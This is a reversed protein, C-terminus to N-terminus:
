EIVIELSGKIRILEGKFLHVKNEFEVILAESMISTQALITYDDVIENVQVIAEIHSSFDINQNFMLEETTRSYTSVLDIILRGSIIEETADMIKEDEIYESYDGYHVCLFSDGNLINLYRDYGEARCSAIKYDSM